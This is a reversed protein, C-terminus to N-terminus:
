PKSLVNLADHVNVYTGYVSGDKDRYKWGGGYDHILSSNPPMHRVLSGLLHNYDKDTNDADEEPEAAEELGNLYACLMEASHLDKCSVNFGNPLRVLFSAVPEIIKM